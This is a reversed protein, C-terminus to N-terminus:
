AYCPIMQIMLNAFMFFGMVLMVCDRQFQWNHFGVYSAAITLGFIMVGIGMLDIKLFLFYYYSGLPFFTHYVSSGTMCVLISICCVFQVWFSQQHNFKAYCGSGTILLVLQILIYLAPLMHTYINATENHVQCLSRCCMGMTM